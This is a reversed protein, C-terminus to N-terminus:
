STLLCHIRYYSAVDAAVAHASRGRTFYHIVISSCGNAGSQSFSNRAVYSGTFEKEKKHKRELQLKTAYLAKSEPMDKCIGSDM